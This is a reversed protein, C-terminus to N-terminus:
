VRYVMRQCTPDDSIIDDDDEFGCSHYFGKLEEMEEEDGHAIVSIEDEPEFCGAVTYILKTAVGQNRHKPHVALMTLEKKSRDFMVFGELEDDDLSVFVERCEIGQHLEEYFSDNKYASYDESIADFLHICSDADEKKAHRIM